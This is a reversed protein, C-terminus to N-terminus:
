VLAAVAGPAPPPGHAGTLADRLLPLAPTVPQVDAAWGIWGPLLAPPFYVGGVLALGAIVWGSGVSVQKVVVGAALLCAGFPALALAALVGIPLALLCGPWALALGFFVAAMLVVVAGVALRVALPFALTALLAVSAGLPSLALREFTGAILEERLGTAPTVLGSRLLPMFALGVAAFEFYAEANPFRTSSV